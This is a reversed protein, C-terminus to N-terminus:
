FSFFNVFPILIMKNQLSNIAFCHVYLCLLLATVSSALSKKYIKIYFSSMKRVIVM